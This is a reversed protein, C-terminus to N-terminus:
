DNPPLPIFMTCKDNGLGDKSRPILLHLISKGNNCDEYNHILHALWISCNQDQDHMCKSCFDERYIEGETGNSFYGV